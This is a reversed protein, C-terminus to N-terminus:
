LSFNYNNVQITGNSSLGSDVTKSVANTNKVIGTGVMVMM